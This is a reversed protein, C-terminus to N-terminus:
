RPQDPRGHTALAANNWASDDTVERGFWAPPEFIGAQEVSDFEVEAIILGDLPGLFTDLEITHPGFEIRHRIKDIRRDQTLNWLAEFQEADLRCEVETRALGRGGKVTLVHEGGHDRVRVAASGDLAVYGQRLPEGATVGAPSEAVLFRREIETTM